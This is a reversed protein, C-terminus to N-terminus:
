RREISTLADIVKGAHDHRATDEDTGGDILDIAGDGNAVLLDRGGSGHLEDRGLGGTLTDHGDGGWLIDNGEKGWIDDNGAGGVLSDRYRSGVLKDNGNGGFLTAYGYATLRDDGDGGNMVSNTTCGIVDNGAEGFLRTNPMFSNLSDNGTGGYLVDRVTPTINGWTGDPNQFSDIITVVEVIDDGSDGYLTDNGFITFIIDNGADGHLVDDGRGDMLYDNGTGGRLTDNGGGSLVYDNGPGADIMLPLTMRDAGSDYAAMFQDNGGLLNFTLRSVKRDDYKTVVGNFNVSLVHNKFALSVRDPGATGTLTVPTAARLCRDELPHFM